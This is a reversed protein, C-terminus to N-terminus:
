WICYTLSKEVVLFFPLYLIKIAFNGVVESTAAEFDKGFEIIFGKMM